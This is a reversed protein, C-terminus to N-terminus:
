TPNRATKTLLDLRERAASRIASELADNLAHRDGAASASLSLAATLEAENHECWDNWAELLLLPDAVIEDCCRALADHSDHGLFAPDTPAIM